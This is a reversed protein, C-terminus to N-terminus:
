GLLNSSISHSHCRADFHLAENRKKGKGEPRRYEGEATAAAVAAAAAQLKSLLRAAQVLLWEFVYMM